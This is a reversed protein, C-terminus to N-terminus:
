FNIWATPSFGAKRSPASIRPSPRDCGTPSHRTSATPGNWPRSIVASSSSACAQAGPMARGVGRLGAGLPTLADQRGCVVLTPCSIRGLLGPRSDPRGMIATQQRMFADRGIREAMGMVTATLETDELRDPHILQPLLRPTVGNFRGRRSLLALLPARRRESPIQAYRAAGLHRAAGPAAGPRPGSAHDGLRCLRGDVPRGPCLPGAGCDLCRLPGAGRM